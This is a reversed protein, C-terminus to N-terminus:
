LPRSARRPDLAEAGLEDLFEEPGVRRIVELESAHIPVVQLLQVHDDDALHVVTSGADLSRPEVIVLADMSSDSSIPERWNITDGAGVQDIEHRHRDIFDAVAWTWSASRSRVVTVFEVGAPSLLSAGLTLGFTWGPSPVDVYTVSTIPPRGNGSFLQHAPEAHGTIADAWQLMADVREGGHLPVTRDQCRLERRRRSPLEDSTIVKRLSWM